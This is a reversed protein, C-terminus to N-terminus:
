EDVCSGPMTYQGLYGENPNDGFDLVKAYFEVTFFGSEPEDWDTDIEFTIEGQYIADWGGDVAGGSVKALPDSFIFGSYDVVQYKLKVWQMGYSPPADIVRLNTVIVKPACETLPGPTPNPSGGSLEPIKDDVPTPTNTITPTHTMTPTNTITPTDTPMPTNTPPPPKPTNTPKRTPTRTPRPTRTPTFTHTPTPTETPTSTSTFTATYPPEGYFDRATATPVHSGLALYVEEMEQDAEQASLGRDRLAEGIISLRFVGFPGGLAEPAYNAAIRSMLDLSFPLRETSGFNLLYAASVWVGM